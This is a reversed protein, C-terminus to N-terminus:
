GEVASAGGGGWEGAWWFWIKGTKMVSRGHLGIWRNLSLSQKTTIPGSMLIRINPQRGLRRQVELFWKEVLEWRSLKEVIEQLLNGM